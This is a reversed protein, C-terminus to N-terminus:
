RHDTGYSLNLLSGFNDSQYTVTQPSSKKEFKACWAVTGTTWFDFPTVSTYYESCFLIWVPTRFLSPIITLNRPFDHMFSLEQVYYFDGLVLINFWSTRMQRVIFTQCFSENCKIWCVKWQFIQAPWKALKFLNTSWIGQRQIFYKHSAAEFGLMTDDYFNVICSTSNLSHLKIKLFLLFDHM